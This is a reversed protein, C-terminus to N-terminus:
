TCCSSSSNKESAKIFYAAALQDDHCHAALDAALRLSDSKGRRPLTRTAEAVQGIALYCKAALEFNRDGAAKVAWQSLSQVIREDNAPYISRSLAAAERYMLHSDLTEFAENHFGAAVFYSVAKPVDGDAALQKAYDHCIEKWFEPSV